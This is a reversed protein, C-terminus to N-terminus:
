QPIRSRQSEQFPNGWKWRELLDITLSFVVFFGVFMISNVVENNFRLLIIAYLALYAAMIALFIVFRVLGYAIVRIVFM